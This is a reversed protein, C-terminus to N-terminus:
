TLKNIKEFAQKISNKASHIDNVPDLYIYRTHGENVEDDIQIPANDKLYNAVWGMESSIKYPSYCVAMFNFTRNFGAYSMAALRDLSLSENYQKVVISTTHIKKTEPSVDKSSSGVIIRISKGAKQLADVLKVAVAARWLTDNANVRAACDVDIMISILHHQSDVVDRISRKWAKDLEGQYIKHIDIEDGFRDKIKKRKRKKVTVSEGKGVIDGLELLSMKEKLIDVGGEWGILSNRYVDKQTVGKGFWRDEAHRDTNPGHKMWLKYNKHGKDIKFNMLDTVSEFHICVVKDNQEVTEM